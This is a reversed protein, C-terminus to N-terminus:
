TRNMDNKNEVAPDIYLAQILKTVENYNKRVTDTKMKGIKGLETFAEM